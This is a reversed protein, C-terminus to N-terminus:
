QYQRDLRNGVAVKKSKYPLFALSSPLTSKPQPCNLSNEMKITKMALAEPTILAITASKRNTAVTNVNTPDEYRM